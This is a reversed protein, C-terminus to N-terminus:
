WSPGSRDRSPLRGDKVEPKIYGEDLACSKHADVPNGDITLKVMPRLQKRPFTMKDPKGCIWCIAM